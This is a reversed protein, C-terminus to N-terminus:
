FAFAEAREFGPLAPGYADFYSAASLGAGAKRFVTAKTARGVGAPAVIRGEPALQGALKGLGDAVAGDCFILDFPAQAPAGEALPGEVIEIGPRGALRERAAAALGSDQELGVVHGALERFLAVVYGYGCGVVLVREHERAGALQVLRALTMPELTARGAPGLPVRADLYALGRRAEPVFEERPVALFASLVRHDTVDATRIQGDVMGLRLRAFDTM